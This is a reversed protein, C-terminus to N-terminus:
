ELNLDDKDLYLANIIAMTLENKKIVELQRKKQDVDNEDIPDRWTPDEMASMIGLRLLRLDFMEAMQKLKGRTPKSQDDAILDAMFIPSFYLADESELLTNVQMEFKTSIDGEGDSLDKKQRRAFFNEYITPSIESCAKLGSNIHQFMM